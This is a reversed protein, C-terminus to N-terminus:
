GRAGADGIVGPTFGFQVAFNATDEVTILLGGDRVFKQLNAMAPGASGPRMDDTEDIKGLNPTLQPRRGRAASQRVDAHGCVIAQAHRPGGAPFLIVDYKSRLDRRGDRGAHQHLRVPGGAPRVDLRWWGEDQTSLWTHLLAIRAARAPHTKVTPAAAM